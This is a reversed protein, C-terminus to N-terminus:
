IANEVNKTFIIMIIFFVMKTMKRTNSYTQINELKSDDKSTSIRCYWSVLLVGLYFIDTDLRFDSPVLLPNFLVNEQIIEMNTLTSISSAIAKTNVINELTNVESLINRPSPLQFGYSGLITSLFIIFFNM